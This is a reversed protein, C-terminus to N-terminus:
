RVISLTIEVQHRVIISEMTQLGIVQRFGSIIKVDYVLWRYSLQSKDTGDNVVAGGEILGNEYQWLYIGVSSLGSVAPASEPPNIANGYQYGTTATKVSNTNGAVRVEGQVLYNGANEPYWNLINQNLQWGSVVRWVATSQDYVLWRYELDASASTTASMAM